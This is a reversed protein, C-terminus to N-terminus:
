RLGQRRERDFALRAALDLCAHLSDLPACPWREALWEAFRDGAYEDAGDFRQFEELLAVTALQLPTPVVQAGGGTPSAPAASSAPRGDCRSAPDPPAPPRATVGPREVAELPAPVRVPPPDTVFHKGGVGGCTPCRWSGCRQSSL